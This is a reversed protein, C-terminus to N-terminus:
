GEERGTDLTALFTTTWVVLDTPLPEEFRMGFPPGPLFSFRNGYHDTLRTLTDPTLAANEAFRLELGEKELGIHMVNRARAAHRLRAVDFLRKAPEPLRGCRDELETALTELNDEPADLLRKYFLVRDSESPLYTEPLYASLPIDITTDPKNKERSPSGGTKQQEIEETLLQGYLDLGVANVYGHQEPGLLNGAGRIELDRMALKFGSGLSAFEKLAALRKQAEETLTVDESYFLLCYAKVRDRGVRGRLQYLQALGFDEAEEVVLTNVTPIDLGSEIISTALLIDYKRHLFDWMIKELEPGSMQGHALAIKATLGHDQLTDILWQRRKEISKVRNHVYFVQGGRRLEQEVASVVVKQDFPGVHTGIPLRGEPPSEIVSLGKLGGLAQGMTRPIPTASLALVDVVDRFARIREKQKVGFRHEEDIIVLGLDKFAVDASLLRHTGIVIDVVGRQVDQLSVKQDAPKGFRSLVAVRVPYDAFRDRFNRGHQEALITTPVLVAVQKGATVAKFAARMAVETKGYGVDGCVVRDMPIPNMMDQRTEEIARAQDPTLEYLFSSGFEQEMHTDGSFSFGQTQSRRAARALLERALEAVAKEVDERTRDWAGTDLSSLIPRKGETGVFKRVHRFDFLPVFVRDGNKYELRLYDAEMNGATKRELAMYRGIGFQEHVVYDGKRLEAVAGLPTGGTFKPLRLRRRIRGFLEGNALVALRNETDLFGHTLPGIPLDIKAEEFARALSRDQEMLIEEMREQEGPNHCFISIKWGEKVWTVVEKALLNMHGAFPPPSRYPLPHPPTSLPDHIFRTGSGAVPSLTPPNSEFLTGEPGLYDLLTSCQQPNARKLLRGPRVETEEILDTSRQTAVNIKRISEIQDFPWLTRLPSEGGPSWLDLVEGRVAVEGPREVTDVREYGHTLLHAFFDERNLRHGLRLTRHSASFDDPPPLFIELSNRPAFLVQTRGGAWLSLATLREEDDESFFSARTPTQPSRWRELAQFDDFLTGATEETATVVLWRGEANQLIWWAEAGGPLPGIARAIDTM